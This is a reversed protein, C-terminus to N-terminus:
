PVNERLRAYEGRSVRYIYNCVHIRHRCSETAVFIISIIIVRLRAFPLWIKRFTNGAVKPFNNNGGKQGTVERTEMQTDRQIITVRYLLVANIM